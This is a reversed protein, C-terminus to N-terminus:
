QFESVSGGSLQLVKKEVMDIEAECDKILKVGKEYYSFAKELSVDEKELEAITSDLEKFNEELTKKNDTETM